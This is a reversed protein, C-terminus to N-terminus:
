YTYVYANPGDDLNNNNAYSLVYISSSETNGKEQYIPRGANVLELEHLLDSAIEELNYINIKSETFILEQDKDDYVKITKM